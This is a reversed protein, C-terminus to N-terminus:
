SGTSIFPSISVINAEILSRIGSPTCNNKSFPLQVHQKPASLIRRNCNILIQRIIRNLIGLLSTDRQSIGAQRIFTQFKIHLIRSGANCFIFQLAKECAENLHVIIHFTDTQPKGDALPQNRFPHNWARPIRILPRNSKRRRAATVHPIFHHM